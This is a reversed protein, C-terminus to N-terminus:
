TLPQQTLGITLWNSSQSLGWRWSRTVGHTATITVRDSRLLGRIFPCGQRSQGSVWLGTTISRLRNWMILLSCRAGWRPQSNHQGGKSHGTQRDRQGIPCLRRSCKVSGFCPPSSGGPILRHLRPARSFKPQHPRNQRYVSGDELHPQAAQSAGLGAVRCDDCSRATPLLVALRGCGTGGPVTMIPCTM